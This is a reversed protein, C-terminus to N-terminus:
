KLMAGICRPLLFPLYYTAMSRLWHLTSRRSDHRSTHDFYRDEVDVQIQDGTIDVNWIKEYRSVPRGLMMGTINGAKDVVLLSTGSAM